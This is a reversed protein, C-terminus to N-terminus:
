FAELSQRYEIRELFHEVVRLVISVDEVLIVFSDDDDDDDRM